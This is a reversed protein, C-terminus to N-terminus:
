FGCGPIHYVLLTIFCASYHYRWVPIYLLHVLDVVSGAFWRHLHFRYAAFIGCGRDGVVLSGLLLPVEEVFMYAEVLLSMLRM